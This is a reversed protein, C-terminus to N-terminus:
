CNQQKFSIIVGNQSQLKTYSHFDGNTGVYVVIAVHSKLFFFKLSLIKLKRNVSGEM